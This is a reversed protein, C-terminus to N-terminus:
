AEEFFKKILNQTFRVLTDTSTNEFLSLYETHASGRLGELDAWNNLNVLYALLGFYSLARLTREEEKTELQQQIRSYAYGNLQM